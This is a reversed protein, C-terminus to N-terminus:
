HNFSFELTQVSPANTPDAGRLQYADYGMQEVPIWISGAANSRILFGTAAPLNTANGGTIYSVAGTLVKVPGAWVDGTTHVQVGYRKLNAPLWVSAVAGTSLAATLNTFRTPSVNPPDAADAAPVAAVLVLAAMAAVAVASISKWLKM